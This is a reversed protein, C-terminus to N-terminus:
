ISAYSVYLFHMTFNIIQDTKAFAYATYSDSQDLCLINRDDRGLFNAQTGKWNIRGEVGLCQEWKKGAYVRKDTRSNWTFPTVIYIRKRDSKKQDAYPNQSEHMNNHIDHVYKM